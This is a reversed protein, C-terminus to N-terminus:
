EEIVSVTQVGTEVGQANSSAKGQSYGLLYIIITFFLLLLINIMLVNNNKKRQTHKEKRSEM